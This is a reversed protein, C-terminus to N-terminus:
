RPRQVDRYVQYRTSRLGAVGYRDVDREWALFEDVSLNYVRIVEEIPVWGGRVAQILAAKRRPTWRESLAPLEPMPRLLLDLDDNMSLM